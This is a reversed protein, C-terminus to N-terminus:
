LTNWYLVVNVDNNTITDTTIETDILYDIIINNKSGGINIFMNTLNTKM